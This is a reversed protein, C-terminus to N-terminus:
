LAGDNARALFTEMDLIRVQECGRLYKDLGGGTYFDRLTWGPGGLVLYARGFEHPNNQLAEALSIVEFPVKQEATGSKQQWKLSVLIKPGTGKNVVLDVYHRGGGPRAGIPTKPKEWSYEGRKLAPAVMQEFVLGTTTNGPPTV